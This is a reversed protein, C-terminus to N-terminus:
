EAPESRGSLTRAFRALTARLEADHVQEALASAEENLMAKPKSPAPKSQPKLWQHSIVIRSVAPYGFYTALRELILPQQHLLQPGFGNEVAIVLTGGHTRQPPFSLKEPLCHAALADGVISRWHTLVRSGALGQSKLAPRTVPEICEGLTKGFPGTRRTPPTENM